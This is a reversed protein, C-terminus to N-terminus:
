IIKLQALICIVFNVVEVMKLHVLETVNIINMNNHM